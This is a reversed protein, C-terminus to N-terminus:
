LIGAVQWQGVMVTVEVAKEGVEVAAKVMVGAEEVALETVEV